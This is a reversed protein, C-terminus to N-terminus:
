DESTLWPHFDGEVFAYAGGEDGELVFRDFQYRRKADVVVECARAANARVLDAGWARLDFAKESPASGPVPEVVFVPFDGAYLEVRLLTYGARRLAAVM